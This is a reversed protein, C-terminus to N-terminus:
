NFESQSHLNFLLKPAFKGQVKVYPNLGGLKNHFASLSRAVCSLSLLVYVYM